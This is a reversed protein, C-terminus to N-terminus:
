ARIQIYTDLISSRKISRPYRGRTYDALFGFYRFFRSFTRLGYCRADQDDNSSRLNPFARLYKQAYFTEPRQEGGYKSLLYLSYRYGVQGIYESPYADLYGLHYKEGFVTLLETLLGPQGLYAKGKRTVYLRGQRKRLYGALDSIIRTLHVPECEAELRLKTIGSEIAHDKEPFESYLSKVLAVPLYGAPTLKVGNPADVATLLLGVQRALPIDDRVTESDTVHILSEHFEGRLLADMQVPSLGDFDELPSNNYRDIFSQM